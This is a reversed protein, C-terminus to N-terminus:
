YDFSGNEADFTYLFTLGGMLYWDKKADTGNNNNVSVGDLLDSFTPRAGVDVSITWAESVDLRLGINVPVVFFSSVEEAENMYNGTASVVDVNAGGFTLGAGISIFPSFARTFFGQNTFRARGMPHWEASAAFELLGSQFELGRSERGFDIDNGSIRAWIANVKLGLRPSFMKRYVVGLAPNIERTNFPGVALDGQYTAVGTYLGVETERQAFLSTLTLLLILTFTARFMNFPKKHSQTSCANYYHLKGLRGIYTLINKKELYDKLLLSKLPKALQNKIM